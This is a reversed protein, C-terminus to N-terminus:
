EGLHAREAAVEDPPLTERLHDPAPRPHRLDETEHLAGGGRGDGDEDLAVRAGPLLEHRPADVRRARTGAGREDGDVARGERLREELALEEAVAPPRERPRGAILAPEELGRGAPRDEEVFHALHGCRHLRLEQADELVALHHREAVRAGAVDIRAHDRRRIAIEGGHHTPALETLVQVVTERGERDVKRREAFAELVDRDEGGAEQSRGGGPVPFGHRAERRRREVEQSAEGPGAVHALELVLDIAGDREGLGPLYDPM